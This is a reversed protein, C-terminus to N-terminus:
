NNGMLSDLKMKVLGRKKKLDQYDERADADSPHQRLWQRLKYIQSNINELLRSYYRYDNEKKIDKISVQQEQRFQELNMVLKIEAGDLKLSTINRENNIDKDHHKQNNYRDEIVFGSTVLAFVLLFGGAIKKWM